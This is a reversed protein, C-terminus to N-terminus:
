SLALKKMRNKRTWSSGAFGLGGLMWLLLTAPEPVGGPCDGGDTNVGDGSDGGGEGSNRFVSGKALYLFDSHYIDIQGSSNDHPNQIFHSKAHPDRMNMVFVCYDGIEDYRDLFNYEQLWYNKDPNEALLLRTYYNTEWDLNVYYYMSSVDGVMGASYNVIQMASRIAYSLDCFDRVGDPIGAWPKRFDGKFGEAGTAFLKYLYAAGLTLPNGGSRTTTIGTINPSYAYPNLTGTADSTTFNFGNNSGVDITWFQGQYYTDKVYTDYFESAFGFKTLTGFPTSFTTTNNHRYNGSGTQLFDNLITIGSLEDAFVSTGTATLMLVALTFFPIQKTQNM